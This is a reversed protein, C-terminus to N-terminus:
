RVPLLSKTSRSILIIIKTKQASETVCSDESSSPSSSLATHCSNMRTTTAKSTSFLAQPVYYVVTFSKQDRLGALGEGFVQGFAGCGGAQSHDRAAEKRRSAKGRHGKGDALASHSGVGGSPSNQQPRGHTHMSSLRTYASHSPQQRWAGWPRVTM